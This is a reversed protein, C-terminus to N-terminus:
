KELPIQAVTYFSGFVLVLPMQTQKKAAQCAQAFAAKVSDCCVFNQAAPLAAALQEATAARAGTLSGLFWRDIQETLEALTGAIDKDHLMGVVAYVGAQQARSDHKLQEALFNAAHPNHAVDLLVEVGDIHVRQLRGPERAQSLGTAIAEASVALQGAELAALTTAANPLPLQPLPLESLRTDQGVFTWTDHNSRQYNFEHGVCRPEIGNARLQQLVAVPFDPEGIIAVKNPRFIGAKETAILGRDNGLFQIHDIGISTIIAVDPDIINVADLRGGLGVELIWADLQQQQLLWLAALTGFEFYTLSIDGRAAEVAAFAAVHAADDLQEGAIRVRENYREIHPSIYVGTRYGQASLISELMRVTSGKGNTGAVTYVQAQPRELLRAAVQAVRTLGLEIQQPHIAELYSLWADLGAATTPAAPVSETM